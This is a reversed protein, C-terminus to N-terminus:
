PRRSPLHRENMKGEEKQVDVVCFVFAFFIKFSIKLFHFNVSFPRCFFRTFTLSEFAKHIKFPSFRPKCNRNTHCRANSNALKIWNRLEKLLFNKLLHHDFYKIQNWTTYIIKPNQPYQTPKLCTSFPFFYLPREPKEAVKKAIKQSESFFPIWEQGNAWGDDFRDSILM